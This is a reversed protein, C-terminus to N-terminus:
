GMREQVPMREVHEEHNRSRREKNFDNRQARSVPLRMIFTTGQSNTDANNSEIRISGGHAHTIASVVALGLGTGESRTTYFPNFIKERQEDPIGPGNDSIVLEVSDAGSQRTSFKLEGHEGMAQIANTVLNGLASVLLQRNGHLQFHNAQGAKQFDTATDQIHSELSMELDHNLDSVLFEEEGMRGDRSYLLMDNVLKELHGLRNILKETFRQRDVEGLQPRKLNSAYLLASSLPTRVQHALSAAMEGMTALRQHQSLRDQLRRMETVDTILLIQGPEAGLPCTLISVRRGDALSVEHGDDVRPAFARHIVDNWRMGQLPEGLLGIAAPNCDQVVGQSDLVVVGGPLANLLSDLRDGVRNRESKARNRDENAKALEENLQSVRNELDRYSDALQESMRNFTLFAETLVQPTNDPHQDM